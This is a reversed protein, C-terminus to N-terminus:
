KYILFSHGLPKGPPEAVTASSTQTQNPIKNRNLHNFHFCNCSPSSCHKSLCRSHLLTPQTRAEEWCPRKATSSPLDKHLLTLMGLKQRHCSHWRTTYESHCGKTPPSNTSLTKCPEGPKIRFGMEAGPLQYLTLRLAESPLSLTLQKIIVSRLCTSTNRTRGPLNTRIM